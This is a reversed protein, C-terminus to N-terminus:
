LVAQRELKELEEERFLLRAGKGGSLKFYAAPPIRGDAIMKRVGSVSRRWRAAVEEILLRRAAPTEVEGAGGVFQKM